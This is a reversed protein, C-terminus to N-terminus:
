HLLARPTSQSISSRVAQCFHAYVCCALLEGGTVVIIRRAARLMEVVHRLNGKWPIFSTIKRMTLSPVMEMDSEDRASAVNSSSSGSSSSSIAGSSTSESNSHTSYPGEEEEEIKDELECHDIAMDEDDSSCHDDDNEVSADEDSVSTSDDWANTSRSLLASIGSGGGRLKMSAQMKAQQQHNAPLTKVSGHHGCRHSVPGLEAASSLSLILRPGADFSILLLGLALRLRLVRAM